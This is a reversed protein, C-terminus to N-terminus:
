GAIFGLELLESRVAEAMLKHGRPDPHAQESDFANGYIGVVYPDKSCLEKQDLSQEIDAFYVGADRAARRMALNMNTVLTNLGQRELPELWGCGTADGQSVPLLRPYGVLVVPADPAAAKLKPLVSTRLTAEMKAVKAEKNNLENTCRGLYCNRAIAGFGIDNGGIGITVLNVPQKRVLEQLRKLQAQEGKYDATTIHQSKAGTCATNEVSDDITTSTEALVFSWATPARHCANDKGATQFYNGAGAGEGSSFSDGLAVLHRKTGATMDVAATTQPEGPSPAGDANNDLWAQVTDLGTRTGVYNWSTTGSASTNCSPTNCYGAAGANAGTVRFAIRRNPEPQSTAADLLEATVTVVDGTEASQRAPSLSLPFSKLGTGSALIYPTGVTGDSATYSSGFDRAIALVSYDAPWTEFAEHVSCGWNSLTADTLGNLAAHTAVIHANNYCNLQGTLTFAGPRLAELIPIPTGSQVGDYAESLSFFLGTKGAQATAFDIGRRTLAEGGQSAHGVADTGILVVNGDVVDTWTSANADAAALRNGSDPDGIVIARYRDFDARTMSAWTGDDVVVPEFGQAAAQAAEISSTGGTVTSGLILVQETAASASAGPLALAGSMAM